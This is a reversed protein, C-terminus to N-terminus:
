IICLTMFDGDYLTDCLTATVATGAARALWKGPESGEGCVWSRPQKDSDNASNLPSLSCAQACPLLLLCKTVLVTLLLALPTGEEQWQWRPPAPVRPRFPGSRFPPAVASCRHAPVTRSSGRLPAGFQAELVPQPLAPKRATGVQCTQNSSIEARYHSWVIDSHSEAGARM